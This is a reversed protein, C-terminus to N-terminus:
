QPVTEDLPSRLTSEQRIWRMWSTASRSMWTPRRSNKAGARYALGKLFAPQFFSNFHPTPPRARMDIIM